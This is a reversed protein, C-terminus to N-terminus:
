VKFCISMVSVYLVSMNLCLLTFTAGTKQNIDLYYYDYYYVFIYLCKCVVHMYDLKYLCILKDSVDEFGDPQIIIISSFDWIQIELIYGCIRYANRCPLISIKKLKEGEVFHTSEVFQIMMTIIMDYQHVHKHTNPYTWCKEKPIDVHFLANKLSM